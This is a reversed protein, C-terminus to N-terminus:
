RVLPDIAALAAPKREEISGALDVWGIGRARLADRFLQQMPERMHPRDRQAGDAMWPVDIGALLYLDVRRREIAEDIWRPTSGFYHRSYVSTSVLDTDLILLRNAERALRDESEIQGRAIDNIEEATPFAGKRDVFERGFEPVWPTEYHTALLQALTTKGTCESGTLVVRRVFFPRVCPPIFRWNEMPNERVATGSVPFRERAPDIAVHRAGLRRALEDGYEESTFVLDPGTPLLRRIAATWLEWFDPHDDPYQPLEDPLQVVRAAPALERMWEFRFAGPIPERALSCVLVTLDDVRGLAEDILHLHGLHPPLFKGLVLGTRPV